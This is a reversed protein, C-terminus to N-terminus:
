LPEGESGGGLCKRIRSDSRLRVVGMTPAEDRACAHHEHGKVFQPGHM